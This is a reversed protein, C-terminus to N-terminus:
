GGAALARLTRLMRGDNEAPADGKPTEIIRPVGALRADTM